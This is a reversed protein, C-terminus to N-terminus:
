CSADMRQQALDLDEFSNEADRGLFCARCIIEDSTWKHMPYVRLEANDEGCLDCSLRSEWVMM